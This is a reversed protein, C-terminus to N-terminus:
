KTSLSLESAAREVTPYMRFIQDLRTIKLLEMVPPKVQALCLSGNARRVTTLACVLSGLGCSNVHKVGGLDIVIRVHGKGVIDRIQNGLKSQDVESLLDGDVHVTSSGEAHEVRVHMSGGRNNRHPQQNKLLQRIRQLDM